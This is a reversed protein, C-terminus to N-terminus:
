NGAQKAALNGIVPLKWEHNGYAKVVLIIWLIFLGLWFLLTVPVMICGSAGHTLLGLIVSLIIWGIWLVAIAVAFFISQFAHFRVFRNSKYPEIFLFIIGVITIYSLAGAMNNQMGSSPPTPTPASAM